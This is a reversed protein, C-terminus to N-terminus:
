TNYCYMTPTPSLFVGSIEVDRVKLILLWCCAVIPSLLHHPVIYAFFHVCFNFFNSFNHVSTVDSVNEVLLAGNKLSTELAGKNSIKDM